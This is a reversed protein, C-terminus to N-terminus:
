WKFMGKYKEKCGFVGSPIKETVVRNCKVTSDLPNDMILKATKPFSCEELFAAFAPRTFEFRM